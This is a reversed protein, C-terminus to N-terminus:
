AAEKERAARMAEDRTDYRGITDKGQYLMYVEKGGSIFNCVTWEGHVWAYRGLPLWKGSLASKARTPQETM